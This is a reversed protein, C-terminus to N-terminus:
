SGSRGGRIVLVGTNLARAMASIEQRVLRRYSPPGSISIVHTDATARLPYRTDAAGTKELRKMVADSRLLRGLNVMENKVESEASFHLTAGDYYWVVGYTTCLDKLFAQASADPLPGTVRQAKIEDSVNVSVGINHGFEVLVDRIEQDIVLYRFSGSPWKPELAYASSIAIVTAAISAAILLGIRGGKMSREWRRRM